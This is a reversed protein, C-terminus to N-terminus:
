LFIQLFRDRSMISSIFTNHFVIDKGWYLRMYPLDNVGMLIILGLFSQIETKSVDKWSNIIKQKNKRKKGNGYINIAETILHLIKETFFARFVSIPSRERVSISTFGGNTVTIADMSNLEDIYTDPDEESIELDDFDNTLENDSFEFDSESTDYTDYSDCSEDDVEYEEDVEM